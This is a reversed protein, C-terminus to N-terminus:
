IFITGLYSDTNFIVRKILCYVNSQKYNNFIENNLTNLQDIDETNNFINKLKNIIDM